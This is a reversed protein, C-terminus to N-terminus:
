LRESYRLLLLHATLAFGLDMGGQPFLHPQPIGAWVELGLAGGAPALILDVDKIKLAAM